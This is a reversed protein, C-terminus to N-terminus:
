AEESITRWALLPVNYDRSAPIGNQVDKDSKQKCIYPTHEQLFPQMRNERGYPFRIGQYPINTNSPYQGPPIRRKKNINHWFM